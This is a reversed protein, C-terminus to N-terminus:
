NCKLEQIKSNIKKILKHNPHDKIFKDLTNCAEISKDIKVLAESLKFLSDPAKISEPYKQYGEAFILAADRYEKKLLHIEGLWYHASGSLDNDQNNKIFNNLAIKAQEFKQARLLDFAIQFQEDPKLIIENNKEISIDDIQENDESLDKSTIKLTGLSNEPLDESKSDEPAIELNESKQSINLIEDNLKINIEEFSKKIEDIEFILNELNSNLSKIDKELDYIRMDFASINISNTNEQSTIKANPDIKSVIKSLDNVDRQLRDIKQKLTLQDQEAFSSFNVILFLVIFFIYKFM